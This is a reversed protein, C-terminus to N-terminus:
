SPLYLRVFKKITKVRQCCPKIRICLAVIIKNCKDIVFFVFIIHFRFIKRLNLKFQLIYGRKIKISLVKIALYCNSLGANYVNNLIIM